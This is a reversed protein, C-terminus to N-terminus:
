QLALQEGGQYLVTAQSGYWQLGIEDIDANWSIVAAKTAPHGGTAM